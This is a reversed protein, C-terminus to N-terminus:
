AGRVLEEGHNAILQEATIVQDLKVMDEELRLNEEEIAATNEKLEEICARLVKRKGFM